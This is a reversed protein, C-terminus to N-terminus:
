TTRIGGGDIRRGNEGKWEKKRMQLADIYCRARTINRKDEILSTQDFNWQSSRSINKAYSRALFQMGRSRRSAKYRFM